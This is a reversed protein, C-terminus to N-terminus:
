DNLYSSINEIQITSEGGTVDDGKVVLTDTNPLYNTASLRVVETHNGVYKFLVDFLYDGKWAKAVQQLVEAREHALNEFNYQTLIIKYEQQAISPM